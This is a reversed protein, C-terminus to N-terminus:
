IPVLGGIQRMESVDSGQILNVFARLEENFRGPAEWFPSHGVGAYWSVEAKPIVEHHERAEDPLVITDEKGHTLFVPISLDRLVADTIHVQPDAAFLMGKNFFFYLTSLNEVMRVLAFAVLGLEEPTRFARYNRLWVLSLAAFLLVNVGSLVSAVVLTTSM